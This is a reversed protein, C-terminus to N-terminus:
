AFIEDRLYAGSERLGRQLTTVDVRRVEGGADVALAAAAGAAQGTIFCGPMVRISAEMQRDTGMCRGATLLNDFSVPVLSRYPIGYSEGKKYRLKVRYEEEFRKMEAEDTNMIHIDVPYCYRGIEDDFDARALFDDVGLTYDCCIRRSERVGLMEGTGLLRLDACGDVYERYFRAYEEMSQRGWIMAHTMSAEDICDTDFIHGLNGGTYGETKLFFGPLHRDAFTFVGDEIARNLKANVNHKDAIYADLDLGGWLSCLTPPMVNGNEDGLAFKGGALATLTGDGTCDIYVTARVAYLGTRSSLLAYDIHGDTAVVDVVTTFFLVQVGAGTVIRDYALKLEEADIPTWYTEIPKHRSVGARIEGGIGACLQREGDTFPAFAPVLGTTGVGGFAGNTEVILVRKGARAAAVAATVGAAGGGVVLVDTVIRTEISKQYTIQEM